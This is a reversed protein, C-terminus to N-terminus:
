KLLTDLERRYNEKPRFIGQLTDYLYIYNVPISRFPHDPSYTVKKGNIMEADYWVGAPSRGRILLIKGHFSIDNVGDHNEDKVLLSLEHPKYVAHDEYQDYTSVAMSDPSYLLDEFKGKHFGYLSHAGNGKATSTVTLLYPHENNFVKLLEWRLAFFTSILGGNEDLLFQTKWPFGANPGVKWDYEVLFFSRESGHIRVKQYYTIKQEKAQVPSQFVQVGSVGILQKIFAVTDKLAPFEKVLHVTATDPEASIIETVPPDEIKAKETRNRCCILLLSIATLFTVHIFQKQPM